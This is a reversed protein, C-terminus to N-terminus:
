DHPRPGRREEGRSPDFDVQFGLPSGPGAERLLEPHVEVRVFLFNPLSFFMQPWIIGVSLGM